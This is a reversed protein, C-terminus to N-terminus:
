HYSKVGVYKGKIQITLSVTTLNIFWSSKKYANM